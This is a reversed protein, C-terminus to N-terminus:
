RVAIYNDSFHQNFNNRYIDKQPNGNLRNNLGYHEVSCSLNAFLPSVLEKVQSTFKRSLDGNVGIHILEEEISNCYCDIASRFPTVFGRLEARLNRTYNDVFDNYRAINSMKVGQSKWSYNEYNSDTFHKSAESDRNSLLEWKKESVLNILTVYLTQQSLVRRIAQTLDNVRDIEQQIHEVGSSLVVKDKALRELKDMLDNKTKILEGRLENPRSSQILLEKNQAISNILRIISKINSYEIFDEQSIDFEQCLICASRKEEQTIDSGSAFRNGLLAMLSSVYETHSNKLLSLVHGDLKSSSILFNKSSEINEKVRIWEELKLEDVRNAIDILKATGALGVQSELIAVETRDYHSTKGHVFLLVQCDKIAMKTAEVRSQIPDNFGPTDVITIGKLAESHYKIRVRKVLASLTGKTSTYENLEDISINLSSGLKSQYGDIAYIADLHEECRKCDEENDEKPNKLCDIDEDNFFEVEVVTGPVENYSIETLVATMPVISMGLVNDKFILANLLTSKGAKMKGIVGIRLPLEEMCNREFNALFVEDLLSKERSTDIINLIEEPLYNIRNEM